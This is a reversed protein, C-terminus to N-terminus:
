DILIPRHHWNFGLGFHHRLPVTGCITVTCPGTNSSQRQLYYNFYLSTYRGLPRSLTVGGYGSNFASIVTGTTLEQLATNRAFGLDLSGFWVRSLQGQVTMHVQHSQAGALVGAGGTLYNAYSIGLTTRRFQYLLASEMGWSVRTGSGATRKSFTAIEPGASLQLALRGTIRRGYAGHVSHNQIRENTGEFRFLSLGYTLALTDRHTPSYNYGTQFVAESSNIFGLGSGTFRLIGYSGSAAISSKPGIHYDVEAVVTNSIRPARATLITQNPEFIPNINTLNTVSGGLGYYHLGGFGFSAEPLYGLRDGLLLSWRRWAIRQTVGFQHIAANLGSRTNYLYGGGSYDAALEYRSWVRQLTVHGLLTSVADLNSQGSTIGSNTDATQFFQLSSLLYSRRKGMQGLTFQEVGSLPRTDSTAQNPEPSPTIASEEPAKSSSEGPSLPRQPAVPPNVRPDTQQAWTAPVCLALALITTWYCERVKRM